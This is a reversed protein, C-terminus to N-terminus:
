QPKRSQMEMSNVSQVKKSKDKTKIKTPSKIEDNTPTNDFIVVISLVLYSKTINTREFWINLLWQKNTKYM